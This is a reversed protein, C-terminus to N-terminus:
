FMYGNSGEHPMAQSSYVIGFTYESSQSSDLTSSKAIITLLPSKVSSPIYASHQPSM